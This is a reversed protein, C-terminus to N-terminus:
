EYEDLRRFANGVSNLEIASLTHDNFKNLLQDKENNSRMEM